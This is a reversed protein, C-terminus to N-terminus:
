KKVKVTKLLWIRRKAPYRPDKRVSFVKGHKKGFSSASSQIRSADKANFSFSDGVKMKAFPYKCRILSSNTGSYPVNKEITYVPTGTDKKKAKKETQATQKAVSKSKTTPM